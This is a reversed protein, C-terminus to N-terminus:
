VKAEEELGDFGEQDGEEDEDYEEASEGEDSAPAGNSQMSSLDLDIPDGDNRTLWPNQAAEIVSCRKAPDKELM